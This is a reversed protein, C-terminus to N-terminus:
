LSLARRIAEDEYVSHVGPDDSFVVPVGIIANRVVADAYLSQAVALLGDLGSPAVHIGILRLYPVRRKQFPMFNHILAIITAPSLSISGHWHHLWSALQFPVTWPPLPHIVAEGNFRLTLTELNNAVLLLGTYNDETEVQAAEHEALLLALKRLRPLTIAVDLHPAARRVAETITLSSLSAGVTDWFLCGAAVDNRVNTLLWRTCRDFLIDMHCQELCDSSCDSVMHIETNEPFTSGTVLWRLRSDIEVMVRPIHQTWGRSTTRGVLSASLVDDAIIIPPWVVHTVAPFNTDTLHDYLDALSHIRLQQIYPCISLAAASAPASFVVLGRPLECGHGGIEMGFPYDLIRLVPQLISNINLFKDAASPLSLTELCPMPIGTLAAIIDDRNCSDMSHGVLRLHKMRAASRRLTKAIVHIIYPGVDHLLEIDLSLPRDRSRAVAAPLSIAQSADDMCYVLEDWLKPHTTARRWRSCVTTVVGLDLIGLYSFAECLVEDPLRNVVAAGNVRVAM